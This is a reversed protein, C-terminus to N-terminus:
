PSCVVMLRAGVSAVDNMTSFLLYAAQKAETAPRSSRLQAEFRSKSLLRGLFLWVELDSMPDRIISKIERWLQLGTSVSDPKRRIRSAVSGSVGKAGAWKRTHWARAKPPEDDGYRALYKLNKTAQACVDQLPSAAYIRPNDTNGKAHIFVVRRTITDALIFDAAETDLDDCV